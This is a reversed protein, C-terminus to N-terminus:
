YYEHAGVICDDDVPDHLAEAVDGGEVADIELDRGPRDEAQEAGVAGALRGGHADERRQEGGVRAVRRHESEVDGALGVGHAGRDAEGALVRRDVLVEGPALVQAHHALQRTLRRARGRAACDLQELAEVEDVGGVPGDPGVRAAHTAPEIQGGGEDM